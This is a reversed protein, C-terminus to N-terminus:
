PLLLLCLLRLCMDPPPSHRSLCVGMVIDSLVFEETRNKDM